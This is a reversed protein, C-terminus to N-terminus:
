KAGGKTATKRLHEILDAALDIQGRDSIVVRIGHDFEVHLQCTSATLAVEVFRVDRIAWIKPKSHNQAM